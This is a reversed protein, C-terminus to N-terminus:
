ALGVELRAKLSGEGRSGPPTSVFRRRCCSGRHCVVPGSESGFRRTRARRAPRPATLIEWKGCEASQNGMCSQCKRKYGLFKWPASPWPNNTTCPKFRNSLSSPAACSQDVFNRESPRCREGSPYRTTVFSMSFATVCFSPNSASAVGLSKGLKRSTSQFSGPDVISANTPFFIFACLPSSNSIQSFHTRANLENRRWASM